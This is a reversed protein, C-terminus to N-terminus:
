HNDKGHCTARQNLAFCSAAIYHLFPLLKLVSHKQASFHDHRRMTGVAFAGHWNAGTAKAPNIRGYDRKQM